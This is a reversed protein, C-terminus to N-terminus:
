RPSRGSTICARRSPELRSWAFEALRVTNIGAARQLRADLAWREEPWHEPYYDVGCHFAM